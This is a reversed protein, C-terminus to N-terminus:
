VAPPSAESGEDGNGSTKSVKTCLQALVLDRPAPCCVHLPLWTLPAPGRGAEEFRMRPDGIKAPQMAAADQVNGLMARNECVAAANGRECANLQIPRKSRLMLSSTTPNSLIPM